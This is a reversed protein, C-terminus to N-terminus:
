TTAIEVGRRREFKKMQRGAMGKQTLCRIFDVHFFDENSVAWIQIEEALALRFNIAAHREFLQIVRNGSKGLEAVELRNEKLRIMFAPQDIAQVIVAPFGIAHDDVRARKRM